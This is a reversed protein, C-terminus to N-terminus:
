VPFSSAANRMGSAVKKEKSTAVPLIQLVFPLPRVAIPQDAEVLRSTPQCELAPRAERLPLLKRAPRDSNAVVVVVPPLGDRPQGLQDDAAGIAGDHLHDVLAAALNEVRM